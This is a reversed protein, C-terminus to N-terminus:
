ARCMGRVRSAHRHTAHRPRTLPVTDILPPPSCPRALTHATLTTLESVLADDICANEYVDEALLQEEQASAICLM